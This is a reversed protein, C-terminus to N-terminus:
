GRGREEAGVSVPGVVEPDDPWQSEILDMEGKLLHDMNLRTSHVVNFTFGKQRVEKQSYVGIDSDRSVRGAAKHSDMVQPFVAVCKVDPNHECWNGIGIDIPAFKTQVSQHRLLKRAGRYSLAYAYLCLARKARFVLRTSNDYGEAAMDPCRKSMNFRRNIPPVTADNSIVFRRDEDPLM